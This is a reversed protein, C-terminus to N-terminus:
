HQSCSECATKSAAFGRDGRDKAREARMDYFGVGDPALQHSGSVGSVVRDDFVEARGDHTGVSGEVAPQEGIKCKSLVPESLEIEDNVRWYNFGLLFPGVFDDRFIRVGDDDHFRREDKFGVLLAGSGAPATPKIADDKDGRRKLEPDSAVDVTKRLKGTRRIACNKLIIGAAADGGLNRVLFFNREGVVDNMVVSGQFGRTPFGLAYERFEGACGTNRSLASLIATSGLSRRRNACRYGRRVSVSRHCKAPDYDNEEDNAGEPKENGM